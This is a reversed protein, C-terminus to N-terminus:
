SSSKIHSTGLITVLIYFWDIHARYIVMIASVSSGCKAFFFCWSSDPSGCGSGGAWVFSRLVMSCHSFLLTGMGGSTPELSKSWVQKPSMWCVLLHAFLCCVTNECGGRPYFPMAGQVSQGRCGGFFVQTIFLSSFLFMCCFSHPATHASSFPPLLFSIEM